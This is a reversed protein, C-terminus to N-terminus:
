NRRQRKIQLRGAYLLAFGALVSGYKIIEPMRSDRAFCFPQSRVFSINICRSNDLSYPKLFVGLVILPISLITLGM